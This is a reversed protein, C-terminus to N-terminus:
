LKSLEFDIVNVDCTQVNRRSVILIWGSLFTTHGTWGDHKRLYFDLTAGNRWVTLRLPVGWIPSHGLRLFVLLPRRIPVVVFILWNVRQLFDMSPRDIRGSDSRLWKTDRLIHPTIKLIYFRVSNAPSLVLHCNVLAEFNFVYWGWNLNWLLLAVVDGIDIQWLNRLPWSVLCYSTLRAGLDLFWYLRGIMLVCCSRFVGILAVMSFNLWTFGLWLGWVSQIVAWFRGPTVISFNLAIFCRLGFWDSDWGLKFDFNGLCSTISRLKRADSICSGSGFSHLVFTLVRLSGTFSTTDLWFNVAVVLWKQGQLLLGSVVAECASVILLLENLIWAQQTEVMVWSRSVTVLLEFIIELVIRLITWCVFHGHGTLRFKLLLGGLNIHLKFSHSSLERLSAFLHLFSGTTHRVARVVHDWHNLWLRISLCRAKVSMPRIGRSLVLKLLIWLTNHHIRHSLSLQYRLHLTCVRDASFSRLLFTMIGLSSKSIMHRWRSVWWGRGDPVFNILLISWDLSQCSALELPLLICTFAYFPVM